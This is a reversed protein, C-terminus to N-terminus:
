VALAEISQGVSVNFCAMSSRCSIAAAAACHLQLSPRAVDEAPRRACVHSTFVPGCCGQGVMGGLGREGGGRVKITAIAEMGGAAGLCHGILSKTANMKIHSTDGTFVSKLAKVEAIDGVLTSRTRTTTCAAPLAQTGAGCTCGGEGYGGWRLVPACM